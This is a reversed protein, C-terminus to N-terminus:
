TVRLLMRWVTKFTRQVSLRVARDILSEPDVGAARALEDIILNFTANPFWAVASMADLERLADPPMQERATLYAPEGVLERLAALTDMAAIGAISPVETSLLSM